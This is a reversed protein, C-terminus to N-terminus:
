EHGNTTRERVMCCVDEYDYMDVGLDAGGGQIDFWGGFKGGSDKGTPGPSYAVFGQATRRYKFPEGTFPDSPVAAICDPVLGDLEAPYRGHRAHFATLSSEIALLRTMAIKRQDLQTEFARFEDEPMNALAQLGQRIIQEAEEDIEEDDTRPLEMNAFDPDPEDVVEEWKRDRAVIDDFPERATDTRLVGNALRSADEAGLRRHFHRVREVAIGEICGAVLADVVLGGRRMANALDFIDLGVDVARALDEQSVAAKLELAFGRALNRMADYDDCHRAFFDADFELPVACDQQLALRAQRLADRNASLFRTKAADTSETDPNLVETDILSAGAKVLLDYGSTATM